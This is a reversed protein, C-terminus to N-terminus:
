WLCLIDIYLRRNTKDLIQPGDDGAEVFFFTPVVVNTKTDDLKVELKSTGVNALDNLYIYKAVSGLYWSFERWSLDLKEM